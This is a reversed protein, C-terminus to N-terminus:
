AWLTEKFALVVIVFAVRRFFFIISVFLLSRQGLEQKKTSTGDFITGYKNIFAPDRWCLPEKWAVFISGLPWICILAIFFLSIYNSVKEALFLTDWEATHINLSGVLLIDFFVEMYFRITGNFYLYREMKAVLNKFFNCTDRLPWFILHLLMYLINFLVLYLIFGINKLFLKSELGATEFNLSFAEEEPFYWLADNIWDTPILDFTAIKIMEKTIIMASPPFKLKEFMPM